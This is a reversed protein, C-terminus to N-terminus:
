ADSAEEHGDGEGPPGTPAGSVAAFADRNPEVDLGDVDSRIAKVEWYFRQDKPTADAGRVAFRGDVIDGAGLQGPEADGDLRATVQITRGDTRCLSEFYRPLEVVANGDTLRGEGRYYVGHEPGEIAAHVLHATPDLPHDIVFNKTTAFLAGGSNMWSKLAGNQGCGVTGEAYVDWTHVGGGWGTPLGVLPHMGRVGINGEAPSVLLRDGSSWLRAIGSLSYLVWRSGVGDVFSANADRNMFSFGAGGGGSHVESGVVHLPRVPAPEGIGVSGNYVTM